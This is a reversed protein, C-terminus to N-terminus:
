KKSKENDRKQGNPRYFLMAAKLHPPAVNGAAQLHTTVSATMLLKDKESTSVFTGEKKFKGSKRLEYVLV